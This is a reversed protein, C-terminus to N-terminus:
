RSPRRVRAMLTSGGAHDPGETSDTPVKTGVTLARSRQQTRTGNDMTFAHIGLVLGIHKREVCPAHELVKGIGLTSTKEADFVEASNTDAVLPSREYKGHAVQHVVTLNDKTRRLPAAKISQNLASLHRELDVVEVGSKVGAPAHEAESDSSPKLAFVVIGIRRPHRKTAPPQTSRRPPDANRQGFYASAADDIERELVSVRV